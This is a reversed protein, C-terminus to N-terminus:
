ASVVLLLVDCPWRSYVCKANNCCCAAIHCDSFTFLFTYFLNKNTQFSQRGKALNYWVNKLHRWTYSLTKVKWFRMEKRHLKICCSKHLLKEKNRANRTFGSISSFDKWVSKFHPKIGSRRRKHSAFVHRQLYDIMISYPFALTSTALSKSQVVNHTHTQWM